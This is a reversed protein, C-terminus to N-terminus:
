PAVRRRTAALARVAACRRRAVDWDQASVARGSYWAREFSDAAPALAAVLDADGRARALLESTTAAADVHLRGREAISLLASRFAHRVAQRHEGRSAAAEALRWEDDADVGRPAAEAIRGAGTAVGSAQLRRVVYALIAALLLGTIVLTPVLGISGVTHSALWRMADLLAGGIRSVLDSNSTGQGLHAFQDGAYVQALASQAPRPDAAVSGPPLAAAQILVELRIRADGVDAPNRDLDDLIPAVAAGGHSLDAALHLPARVRDLVPDHPPVPQAPLAGLADRLAAVYEVGPAAAQAATSHAALTTTALLAALTALAAAVARRISV